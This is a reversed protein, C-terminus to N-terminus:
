IWIGAAALHAVDTAVNLPVPDTSGAHGAIATMVLAGVGLVLVSADIARSSREKTSSTFWVVAAVLLFLARLGMVRGFRTDVVGRLVDGDLAASLGLGAAHVGQLVLAAITAVIGAALALSILTRRRALFGGNGDETETDRWVLTVFSVAGILLLLSAYGIGRAIGLLAGVLADGTGQGRLIEQAIGQPRQGPAGVHFVFAEQIVHSDASIVRWTVTYTGDPLDPELGVRVATADGAVHDVDATDVRDGSTDYARIAGFAVEVPENFHMVIESPASPVVEDIAPETSEVIAHARAPAAAWLLLVAVM